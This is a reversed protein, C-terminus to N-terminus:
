TSRLLNLRFEKDVLNSVERALKHADISTNGSSQVTINPAITVQYVPSSTVSTSTSAMSVPAISSLKPASAVGVSSNTSPYVGDGKASSGIIEGMQMGSWFQGGSSGGSAGGAAGSHDVTAVYNSLAQGTMGNVVTKSSDSSADAGNLGWPAGMKKYEFQAYKFEEPQVHWPENNVNAFNILGFEQSHKVIWDFEEKPQMDAALGIEHMSLGPPLADPLTPSKKKWYKGDWQINTKEDTPVYRSLFLNKQETYSRTGGGITLKPNAMMMSKVREAFRPNLKSLAVQSKRINEPTKGGSSSSGGSGTSSSPGDGIHTGKRIGDGFAADLMGKTSGAIAMGAM